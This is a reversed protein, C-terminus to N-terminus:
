LTQSIGKPDFYIVQQRNGNERQGDPMRVLQCRTWTAPDAGLNVAYCFFKEVIPEEDNAVFFWGHLSKGGSHVCMVLPAFKGLHFLLAAHMDFTGQDFEVVLFRRPDTNALCRMSKEGAKTMGYTAAMPSPVIFQQRDMFGRWEERTRTLPFTNKTAACLLLNGPFLHDIIEETHRSNDNGKVSSLDALDALKPGDRVVSEIRGANRQPWRPGACTQGDPGEFIQRSNRVANEIESAPVERGCHSTAEILLSEIKGTYLGRRHLQLAVKFLWRHVGKGARPCTELLENAWLPLDTHKM